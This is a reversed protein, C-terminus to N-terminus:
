RRERLKNQFSQRIRTPDRIFNVAYKALQLISSVVMSQRFGIAKGCACYPPTVRAVPSIGESGPARSSTHSASALTM